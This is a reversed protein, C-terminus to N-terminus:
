NEEKELIFKINHTNCIQILTDVTLHREGSELMRISRGTRNISKGFDDQTLKTSDRLLKSIEEPTCKNAIIKM